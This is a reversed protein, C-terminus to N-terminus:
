FPLNRILTFAIAAALLLPLAPRPLPLVMSDTERWLNGLLSAAYLLAFPLLLTTLANLRMAELPRGHLLAALARTSGCGPCLLGFIQHIPCAPLLLAGYGPLACRLCAIVAFASALGLVQRRSRRM